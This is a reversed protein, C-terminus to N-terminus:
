AKEVGTFNPGANEMGVNEADGQIDHAAHLARNIFSLRQTMTPINVDDCSPQKNVNEVTKSSRHEFRCVCLCVCVCVCVCRDIQSLRTEGDYRVWAVPVIM